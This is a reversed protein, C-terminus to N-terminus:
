QAVEQRYNVHIKLSMSLTPQSGDTTTSPTQSRRSGRRSYSQRQSAANIDIADISITPENTELAHIFNLIRSYTGRASINLALQSRNGRSAKGSSIQLDLSPAMEGFDQMLQTQLANASEARYMLYDLGELASSLQAHERQLASQDDLLQRYDVALEQLAEIEELRERRVAGAKQCVPYVIGGFFLVVVGALLYIREKRSLKNLWKNMM